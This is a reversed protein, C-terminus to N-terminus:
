KYSKKVSKRYEAPTMGKQDTHPCFEFEEEAGGMVFVFGHETETTAPISFFTDPIDCRVKVLEKTKEHRVLGRRKFQGYDTCWMEGEIWTSGAKVPTVPMGYCQGIRPEYKM